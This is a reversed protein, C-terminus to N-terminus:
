EGLVEALCAPGPVPMRPVLVAAARDHDGAAEWDLRCREWAVMALAAWDAATSRSAVGAPAREARLAADAWRLARRIRHAKASRVPREPDDVVEVWIEDQKGAPFRFEAQVRSDALKFSAHDLVLRKKPDVLRAHWRGATAPDADRTATAQVTVCDGGTDRHVLLDSYPTLGPRFLKPPAMGPDLVSHPGPLPENALDAVEAAVDMEPTHSRHPQARRLACSARGAEALTRSHLGAQEALVAAEAAWWPSSGSIPSTARTADLRAISSLAACLEPVPLVRQPGTSGTEALDRLVAGARTGFLRNILTMASADGVDVIARVLQGDARDFGLEVGTVPILVAEGAPGAPSGDLIVEGTEPVYSLTLYHM